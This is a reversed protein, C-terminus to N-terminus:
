WSRNRDYRGDPNADCFVQWRRSFENKAATLISQPVDGEGIEEGDLWIDYRTFASHYANSEVERRVIVYKHEDAKVVVIEPSDDQVIKMM